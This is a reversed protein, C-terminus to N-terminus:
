QLYLCCSVGFCHYSSGMQHRMTDRTIETKVVVMCINILYNPIRCSQQKQQGWSSTQATRTRHSCLWTYDPLKGVGFLHEWASSSEAFKPIYPAWPSRRTRRTAIAPGINKGLKHEGTKGKFPINEPTM